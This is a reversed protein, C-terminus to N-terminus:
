TSSHYKCDKRFSNPGHQPVVKEVMCELLHHNIYNWMGHRTIVTFLDKSCLVAQMESVISRPIAKDPYVGIVAEHLYRVNMKTLDLENLVATQLSEFSQTATAIEENM